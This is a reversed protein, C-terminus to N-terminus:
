KGVRKLLSSPDRKSHMVALILIKSENLIQYCILYPFRQVIVRRINTDVFPFQTPQRKIAELGAEVALVFDSGLGRRNSEYWSYADQIDAKVMRHFVLHFAKM